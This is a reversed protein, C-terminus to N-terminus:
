PDADRAVLAAFAEAAATTLPGPAAPLPAGDVAAIPQVDRTTSTLFAEDAGALAALPVDEEVADTVELLLARTVGALCGSSLTPTVLRGDVGVFVNTGTGECLAGVTNAFIAESAGAEAARALAVVNEAYSTSKVGALAGRENRPWPVTVVETTASWTSPPGAAVVITPPVDDRVSGLPGAGGTVTIRIRGVDPGGERIVAQTAQWLPRDGDPLGDALGLALASLRLRRLHRTMAFPEGDLVKITEFIGDGVTLGHDFVSVRAESADVLDGNLWVPSPWGGAPPPSM